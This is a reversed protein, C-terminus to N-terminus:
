FNIQKRENESAWKWWWERMAGYEWNCKDSAGPLEESTGCVRLTLTYFGFEYDSGKVYWENVWENMWKIWKHENMEM